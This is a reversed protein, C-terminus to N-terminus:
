IFPCVFSCLFLFSREETMEKCFDIWGTEGLCLESISIVCLRHMLFTASRTNTWNSGWFQVNKEWSTHAFSSRKAATFKDGRRQKFYFARRNEIPQKEKNITLKIDQLFITITKLGKSIVKSAATSCNSILPLSLETAWLNSHTIPNVCHLYFCLRFKM